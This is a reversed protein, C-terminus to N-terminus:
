RTRCIRQVLRGNSKTHTETHEYNIAFICGKKLGVFYNILFRMWDRYNTNFIFAMHRVVEM